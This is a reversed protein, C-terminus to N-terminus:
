REHLCYASISAEMAAQIERRFAAVSPLIGDEILAEVCQHSPNLPEPCLERRRSLNEHLDPYRMIFEGIIEGRHSNYELDLRAAQLAFFIVDRDVIMRDHSFRPIRMEAYYIYFALNDAAAAHGDLFDTWLITWATQCDPYDYLPNQITSNESATPTSPSLLLYFVFFAAVAFCFKRRFKTTLGVTNRTIRHPSALDNRSNHLIDDTNPSNTAMSRRRAHWASLDALRM